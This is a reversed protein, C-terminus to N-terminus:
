VDVMHANTETTTDFSILVKHKSIIDGSGDGLVDVWNSLTDEAKICVFLQKREGLVLRAEGVKATSQYTPANSVIQISSVQLDSSRLVRM